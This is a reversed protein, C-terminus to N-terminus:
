KVIGLDIFCNKWICVMQCRTLGEVDIPKIKEIMEWLNEVNIDPLLGGANEFDPNAMYPCFYARGDPGFVVGYDRAASCENILPKRTYWNNRLKVLFDSRLGEIITDGSKISELVQALCSSNKENLSPIQSHLFFPLQMRLLSVGELSNLYKISEIVDEEIHEADFCLDSVIWDINIQLGSGKESKVKSLRELNNLVKLLANPAKIGHVGQYLSSFRENKGAPCDLSLNFWDGPNNNSTLLDMNKQNLLLGSSSLGVAIGRNKAQETLLNVVDSNLLPEGTMGSIIIRWMGLTKDPRLDYANFFRDVLDISMKPPKKGWSENFPLGQCHQCSYACTSSPHFEITYSKRFKGSSYAWAQPRGLITTDEGVARFVKQITMNAQDESM